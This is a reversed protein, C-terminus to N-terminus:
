ARNHGQAIASEQSLLLPCGQKSLLLQVFTGPGRREWILTEKPVALVMKGNECLQAESFFSQVSSLEKSFVKYAGGRPLSELDITQLQAGFVEWCGQM